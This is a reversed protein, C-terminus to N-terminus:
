LRSLVQSLDPSAMRQQLPFPICRVYVLRKGRLWGEDEEGVVLYCNNLKIKLQLKQSESSRRLFSAEASARASSALRRASEAKSCNPFAMTRAPSHSAFYQTSKDSRKAELCYGKTWKGSLGVVLRGGRGSQRLLGYM